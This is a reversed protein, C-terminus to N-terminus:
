PKTVQAFLLGGAGLNTGGAPSSRLQLTLTRVTAATAVFSHLLAASDGIYFEASYTLVADHAIKVRLGGASTGAPINAQVLVREGVEVESLDFTGAPYDLWTANDASFSALPAFFQRTIGNHVERAKIRNSLADAANLSSTAIKGNPLLQPYGNAVGFFGVGVALWRGLDGPAFGNPTQMLTDTSLGGLTADFFYLGRNAAVMAVTGDQLVTEARLAALTAYTRLRRVGSRNPDIVDLGAKLFATRNASRQLPDEVTEVLRPNEYEPSTQEVWEDPDGTLEKM